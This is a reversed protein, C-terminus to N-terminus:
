DSEIQVETLQGRCSKFLQMRTASLRDALVGSVSSMMQFGLEPSQACLALLEEGRVAVAEVSGMAQVAASMRPRKLLASWGVLGGPGVEGIKRCGVESDCVAVSVNGRIIFYVDQADDLQRFLTELPAFEVDRSIAALKELTADSLDQLIEIQRLSDVSVM